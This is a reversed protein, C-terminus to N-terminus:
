KHITKRIIKDINEIDKYSIYVFNDDAFIQNNKENSCYNGIIYIKATSIKKIVNVLNLLDSYILSNYEKLIRNNKKCKNKYEFNNASLIIVDSNSILQNLYVNKEKIVKFDNSTISKKIQSYTINDFTYKNYKFEYKNYVKVDGIYLYSLSKNDFRKYILFSLICLLFFIVSLINKKM